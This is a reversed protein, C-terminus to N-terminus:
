NVTNLHPAYKACRGAVDVFVNKALSVNVDFKWLIGSIVAKRAGMRQAPSYRVEAGKGETSNGYIKVLMAYDIESGFAGEVASLYASHSLSSSSFQSLRRTHVQLFLLQEGKRSLVISFNARAQPSNSKKVEEM